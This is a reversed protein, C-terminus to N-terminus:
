FNHIFFKKALCKLEGFFMFPKIIKQGKVKVSIKNQFSTYICNGNECKQLFMLVNGQEDLTDGVESLSMEILLNQSNELPNIQTIKDRLMEPKVGSSEGRNSLISVEFDISPNKRNGVLLNKFGQIKWVRENYEFELGKYIQHKVFSRFVFRHANDDQMKQNVYNMFLFRFYAENENITKEDTAYGYPVLPVLYYFYDDTIISDKTILKGEEYVKNVECLLKLDNM